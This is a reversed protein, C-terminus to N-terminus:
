ANRRIVGQRAIQINCSLRLFTDAMIMEPPLTGTKIAAIQSTILEIGQVLYEKPIGKLRTNSVGIDKLSFYCAKYAIRYERLLASLTGIADNKLLQAQQNLGDLNKKQIMDVINFVQERVYEPVVAMVNECTITNSLAKLSELYGLLTYINVEDNELYDVRRLLEEVAGKQFVIGAAQARKVIFNSLSPFAKHKTCLHLLGKKNMEKYFSSRGDYTHFVVILLGDQMSCCDEFFSNNIEDLKQVTLLAVRREDVVPYTTLHNVVSSDLIESNMFNLEPMQMTGILSKRKADILYPEDGGILVISM